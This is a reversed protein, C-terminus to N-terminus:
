PLEAVLAEVEDEVEELRRMLALVEIEKVQQKVKAVRGGLEEVKNRPASKMIMMRAGEQCPRDVASIETLKLKHLIRRKAM